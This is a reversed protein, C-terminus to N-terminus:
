SQGPRKGLQVGQVSLAVVIGIIILSFFVAAAICLRRRYPAAAPEFKEGSFFAIGHTLLYSTSVGPRAHRIMQLGSVLAVLWAVFAAIGLVTIALDLMSTTGGQVMFNM